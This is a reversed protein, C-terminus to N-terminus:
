FDVVDVNHAKMMTEMLKRQDEEDKKFKEMEAKYMDQMPKGLADLHKQSEPDHKGGEILTLGQLKTRVEDSWSTINRIFM